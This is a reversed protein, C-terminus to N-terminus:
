PLDSGEASAASRGTGGFEDFAQGLRELFADLDADTAHQGEEAAEHLLGALFTAGELFAGRCAEALVSEAEAPIHASRYTEWAADLATRPDIM